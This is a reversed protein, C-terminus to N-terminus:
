KRETFFERIDGLKRRLLGLSKLPLRWLAKDRQLNEDAYQFTPSLAWLSTLDLANHLWPLDNLPRYQAIKLGIRQRMKIPEIETWLVFITNPLSYIEDYPMTEWNEQAGLQGDASWM